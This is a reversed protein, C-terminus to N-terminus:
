GKVEKGRYVMMLSAYVVLAAALAGLEPLPIANSKMLYAVAAGIAWAVFGVWNVKINRKALVDIDVGLKPILYYHAIIIGPIAPWIIALWTAFDTYRYLIGSYIIIVSAVVLATDYIWRKIKPYLQVTSLSIHWFDNDATTWILLWVLIGGVAGMTRMGILFPDAFPEDPKLAYAALTEALFTLVIMGYFVSLTSAKAFDKTSRAYRASNPQLFAAMINLGVVFTVGDWFTPFVAGYKAKFGWAAWNVQFGYYITIFLLFVLFWPIIIKSLLSVTKYGAVSSLWVFVAAVWATIYINMGTLDTISLALMHIGLAGWALTGALVLFNFVKAGWKGFFKEAIYAIPVREKVGVHGVLIYLILNFACGIILWALVDYWPWGSGALLGGTMLMFGSLWLGVQVFAIDWWPRLMHEPVREVEWDYLFGRERAVENGM